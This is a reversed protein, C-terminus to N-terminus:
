FPKKGWNKNQPTKKTRYLYVDFNELLKKKKGVRDLIQTSFGFLFLHQGETRGCEILSFFFWGQRNPQVVYILFLDTCYLSAGLWLLGIGDKPMNKLSFPLQIGEASSLYYFFIFIFLWCLKDPIQFLCHLSVDWKHSHWPLVLPCIQITSFMGVHDAM